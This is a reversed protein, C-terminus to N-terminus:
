RSAAGASRGGWERVMFRVGVGIAAGPMKPSLSFQGVVGFVAWSQESWGSLYVAQAHGDNRNTTSVGVINTYKGDWSDDATQLTHM